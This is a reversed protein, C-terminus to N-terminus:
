AVEQLQITQTQCHPCPKRVMVLEGEANPESQLVTGTDRCHHCDPMADVANVRTTAQTAQWETFREAITSAKSLLYQKDSPRTAELFAKLDDPALEPLLKDLAKITGNRYTKIQDKSPTEPTLRYEAFVTALEWLRNNKLQAPSPKQEKQTAADAHPIEINTEIYHSASLNDEDSASLNDVHPASLNDVHTIADSLTEYNISYWHTRDERSKNYRDTATIYGGDRLKKVIRRITRVDWFPFNSRKWDEFNNRVWWRGDRNYEQTKAKEYTRLWYHIQQLVIAENLGIKVALQPLVQLPQDDILLKNM